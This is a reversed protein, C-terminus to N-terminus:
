EGERWASFPPQDAPRYAVTVDDLSLPDLIAKNQIDKLNPQFVAHLRFPPLRRGLREGGSATFFGPMAYGTGPLDALEFAIRGDPGEDGDEKVAVAPARAFPGHLTIFRLWAEDDPM